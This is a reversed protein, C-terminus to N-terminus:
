SCSTTTAIPIYKKEKESQDLLLKNKARTEISVTETCEDVWGSQSETIITAHNSEKSWYGTGSWTFDFSKTGTMWLEGPHVLKHTFNGSFKGADDIEFQITYAHNDCALMSGFEDHDIQKDATINFKFGGKVLWVMRLFHWVENVISDAFPGLNTNIIKFNFEENDITDIADSPNNFEINYFNLLNPRYHGNIIYDGHQKCLTLWINLLKLRILKSAKNNSWDLSWWWGEYRSDTPSVDYRQRNFGFDSQDNDGFTMGPSIVQINNRNNWLLSLGHAAAIGDENPFGVIWNALIMVNAIRCDRLNDNVEELTIKKNMLDLVKQSGSEVGFSLHECGSDHLDKFYDLDMRGDCRAYGMWRIDLKREIVGRAFLRLEKLNGNVLSDIFWVTKIGYNKVQFEVEDLLTHSDRDRYKWFWTETCFSCQAVCGRSLEASVGNSTKYISLDYDTYDPMPLTDLNLRTSGYTEGLKVPMDINNEINHLIDILAQEGEGAVWHDVGDMPTFHPDHCAPGGVIIKINPSVKKLEAIMWKTPEINTDYLSFGIVNPNSDILQKVYTILYPELTPHLKEYYNMNMWWWYKASDWADDLSISKLEHYLGGNYDFVTTAYGAGRAVASLRALNYPPFYVGWCPILCLTLKINRTATITQLNQFNKRRTTVTDNNSQAILNEVIWVHKDPQAQSEDKM